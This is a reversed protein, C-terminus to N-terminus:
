DVSITKLNGTDLGDVKAKLKNFSTPVNVFKNIELKDVESKLASFDKKAALDSTEVSAANKLKKKTAYNSLNLIVKIKNKIHSDPEPYYGM